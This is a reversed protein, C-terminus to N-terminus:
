KWKTINLNTPSTHLCSIEFFELTIVVITTAFWIKFGQNSYVNKTATIKFVSSYSTWTKKKYYVHKEMNLDMVLLDDLCLKVAVGPSARM